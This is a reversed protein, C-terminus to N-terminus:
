YSSLVVGLSHVSTTTSM